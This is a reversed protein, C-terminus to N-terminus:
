AIKRKAAKEFAEFLPLINTEFQDALVKDDNKQFATNFEILASNFKEKDILIEEENLYNITANMIQIEWNMGKLITKIYEDTDPQRNERLEESISKLAKLLKPSYEVLTELAEIIERKQDDM